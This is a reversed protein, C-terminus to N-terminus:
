PGLRSASSDHAKMDVDLRAGIERLRGNLRRGRIPIAHRVALYLDPYLPASALLAKDSYLAEIAPLLYRPSSSGSATLQARVSEVGAADQIFTVADLLCQETCSKAITFGDVWAFPRARRASLPPPLVAIRSPTVCGAGTCTRSEKDIYYLSESYGLFARGRGQAFLRPYADEERHHQDDRCLGDDCMRRLSELVQEAAGDPHASILHRAARDLSRDRDLVVELYLEGLTGQGKLDLLLGAGSPHSPAIASMLEQLTRAHTLTDQRVVFLYNTCLWHPISFVEPGSKMAGRAVPAFMDARINMSSPMAQIRGSSILDDLLVSDVELVDADTTTIANPASENYYNDSLDVISLRIDPHKAEFDTKVLSFYSEKDPVFPYIAVRLERHPLPAAVVCAGGNLFFLAGALVAGRLAVWVM